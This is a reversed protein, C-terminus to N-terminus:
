ATSGDTSRGAKRPGRALTETEDPEIHVFQSSTCCATCAGCPVQMESAADFEEFWESFKVRGAYPRDTWPRAELGGEHVAVHHRRCLLFCNELSTDGGRTWWVLHHADCWSAPARCGPFQCHEDRLM